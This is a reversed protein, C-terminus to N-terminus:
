CELECTTFELKSRGRQAELMGLSVSNGQHVLVVCQCFRNKSKEPRAVIRYADRYDPGTCNLKDFNQLSNEDNSQRRKVM